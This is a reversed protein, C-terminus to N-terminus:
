CADARSPSAWRSQWRQRRRRSGPRVLCPAGSRKEWCTVSKEANCTVATLPSAQRKGTLGTAVSHGPKSCDSVVRYSRRTPCSGAPDTPLPEGVPQFVIECGRPLDALRRHHALAQELRCVLPYVSGPRAKCDALGDDEGGRVSQVCDGGTQRASLGIGEVHRLIEAAARVPVGPVDLGGQANLLVHGGACEQVIEALGGLQFAELRGGPLRLRLLFSDQRPAQYFLGFWQFRFRDDPGPPRNTEACEMLRSFSDLPHLRRKIGEEEPLEAEGPSTPAPRGPSLPPVTQLPAPPEVVVRGQGPRAAALLGDLYRTAESVSLIRGVLGELPCTRDPALTARCGNGFPHLLGCPPDRSGSAIGITAAIAAKRDPRCGPLTLGSRQPHNEWRTRLGRDVKHCEAM